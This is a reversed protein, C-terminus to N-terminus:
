FRFLFLLHIGIRKDEIFIKSFEIDIFLIEIFNNNIDDFSNKSELERLYLTETELFFKEFLIYLNDIVTDM